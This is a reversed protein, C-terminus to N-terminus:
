RGDTFSDSLPVVDLVAVSIGHAVLQKVVYAGIGGSGGTVVAIEKSWNWKAKDNKLSWRNIAFRNLFSNFDVLAWIPLGWKLYWHLAALQDYSLGIRGGLSLASPDLLRLAVSGM